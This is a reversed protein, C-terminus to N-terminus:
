AALSLSDAAVFALANAQGLALLVGCGAVFVAVFLRLALRLHRVPAARLLALEAGVQGLHLSRDGCLDEEDLDPHAALLARHAATLTADLAHLIALEPAALLQDNTPLVDSM